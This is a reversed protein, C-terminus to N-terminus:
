FGAHLNIKCGRHHFKLFHYASNRFKKAIREPTAYYFLLGSRVEMNGGIKYTNAMSNLESGSVLYGSVMYGDSWSYNSGQNLM